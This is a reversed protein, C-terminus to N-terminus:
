QFLVALSSHTDVLTTSAYTLKSEGELDQFLVPSLKQPRWQGLNCLIFSGTSPHASAVLMRIDPVDLNLLLLRRVGDRFGRYFLPFHESFAAVHVSVHNFALQLHNCTGHVLNDGGILMATILYTTTRDLQPQHEHVKKEIIRTSDKAPLHM